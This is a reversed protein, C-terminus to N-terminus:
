VFGQYAGIARYYDGDFFLADGELAYHLEEAIGEFHSASETLVFVNSGFELPFEPEGFVMPQIKGFIAAFAVGLAVLLFAYYSRIAYM